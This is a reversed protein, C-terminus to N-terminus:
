YTSKTKYRAQQSQVKTNGDLQLFAREIATLLVNAGFLDRWSEIQFRYIYREGDQGVTRLAASFSGGPGGQRFIMLGKGYDPAVSINEEFLVSKNLTNGIDAISDAATTFVHMQRFYDNSGRDIIKGEGSLKTKKGKNLFYILGFVGLTALLIIVWQM